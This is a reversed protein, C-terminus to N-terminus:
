KTNESIEELESVWFTRATNVTYKTPTKNNNKDTM